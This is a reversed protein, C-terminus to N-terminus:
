SVVQLDKLERGLKKMGKMSLGGSEEALVMYSSNYARPQSADFEDVALPRIAEIYRSELDSMDTTGVSNERQMVETTETALNVKSKLKKMHELLAEM